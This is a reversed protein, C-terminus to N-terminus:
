PKIFANLVLDKIGLNVIEEQKLGATSFGDLSPVTSWDLCQLAPEFAVTSQLFMRSVACNVFMANNDGNSLVVIGRPGAAAEPGDFCILYLGRFGDNAAQHLMWKSAPAGPASAAEFVFVGLGMKARM